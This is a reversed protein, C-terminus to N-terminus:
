KIPSPWDLVRRLTGGMIATKAVPDLLDTRLLSDRSESYLRGRERGLWAKTVKAMRLRTYDSAWMLREVGFADIVADLFPWTDEFPYDAHTLVPLGCLKVYVNPYRALALLGPLADWPDDRPPSVPSQSLGLHDVILPLEPHREAIPAVAAAHGHTSVFMPLGIRAAAQFIRDFGGGEFSPKLSADRFDAVLARAALITPRAAAIDIAAEDQEGPEVFTVVGAFREPYLDVCADIFPDGAVVLAADVGTADMAERLLEVKVTALHDAPLTSLTAPTAPEHVQADLIEIKPEM